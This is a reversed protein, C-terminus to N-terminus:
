AEVGADKRTHLWNFFRRFTYGRCLSLVVFALTAGLNQTMSVEIGFFPYILWQGAFVSIWYGIVTNAKAELFSQWRSQM